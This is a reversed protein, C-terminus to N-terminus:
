RDKWRGPFISGPVELQIWSVWILQPYWDSDKLGSSACLCISKRLEAWNLWETIDSEKCDWPSYCALGEQGDGDGPAQEFEHGTIGDLWRMRQRGRERRWDKGADPDKGILWNKGDPPWLKPTEAEADTRGIFIWSQNGKPHLPQIEKCDLPSLRRWIGCNLLM